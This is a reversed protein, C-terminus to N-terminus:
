CCLESFFCLFQVARRAQPEHAEEPWLSNSAMPLSNAFPMPFLPPMPTPLPPMLGQAGHAGDIRRKFQRLVRQTVSIRLVGPLSRGKWGSRKSPMRCRTAFECDSSSGELLEALSLVQDDTLGLLDAAVDCATECLDVVDAEAEAVGCTACTSLLDQLLLPSVHTRSMMRQRRLCKCMPVQSGCTFASSWVLQPPPPNRLKFAPPGLCTVVVHLRRWPAPETSPQGKVNFKAGLHKRRCVAFAKVFADAGASM